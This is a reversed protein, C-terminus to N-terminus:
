LLWWGVSGVIVSAGAALLILCGSGSGAARPQNRPQTSKSALPRRQPRTRRSTAATSRGSRPIRLRGRRGSPSATDVLVTVSDAEVVRGTTGWAHGKALDILRMVADETPGEIVWRNGKGPNDLQCGTAQRLSSITNGGKGIIYGNKGPPVTMEGRVTDVLACIEELLHAVDSDTEGFVTVVDDDVEVLLIGSRAQLRKIVSGGKGILKGVSGRPLRAVIHPSAALRELEEAALQVSSADTGTVEVAGTRADVSISVDHRQGIRAKNQAVLKRSGEAVSIQRRERIRRVATIRMHHSDLFFLWVNRTWGDGSQIGLLAKM